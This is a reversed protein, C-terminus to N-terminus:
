SADVLDATRAAAALPVPVPHVRVTDAADIVGYRRLWERNMRAAEAHAQEHSGVVVAVPVFAPADGTHLAWCTPPRQAIARHWMLAAGALQRTSRQAVIDRREPDTYANWVAPNIPSRFVYGIVQDDLHVAYGTPDDPVFTLDATPTM